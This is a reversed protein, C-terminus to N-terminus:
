RNFEISIVYREDNVLESYLSPVENFVEAFDLLLAESELEPQGDDYQVTEVIPNKCEISYLLKDYSAHEYLTAQTLTFSEELFDSLEARIICNFSLTIGIIGSYILQHNLRQSDIQKLMKVPIDVKLNTKIELHDAIDCEIKEFNAYEYLTISKIDSREFKM